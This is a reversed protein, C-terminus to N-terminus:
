ADDSMFVCMYMMASWLFREAGETIFPFRWLRGDCDAQLGRNSVTAEWRNRFQGALPVVFCLWGPGEWVM